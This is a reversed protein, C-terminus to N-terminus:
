RAYYGRRAAVRADPVELHVRIAHWKGDTDAGSPQYGLVYENRIARQITAVAVGIDAAGRVPFYLGGTREALDALLAQGRAYEQLEIPKRNRPAEDVAITYIQVDAEMAVQMLERVTYQSHNDIGDSVVLLARRANRGKRVQALALYITDVLATSGGAKSLLAANVMSGADRSFGHLPLPRDSVAMLLAEDDPEFGELFAVLASKARALTEAMSGSVDLVLGVSSIEDQESFAVIPREIRDEFLAFSERRLGALTAGRRDTVTVPVLVLASDARFTPSDGAAGLPDAGTAPGFPLLALLPFLRISTM